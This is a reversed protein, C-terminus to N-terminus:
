LAKPNQFPARERELKLQKITPILTDALNMKDLLVAAGLSEALEKSDQDNWISIALVRPGHSLHSKVEQPKINNGDPMHLDLVVVQPNLNRTMRITQAFDAAEGVIEIEAQNLLLQRIGRRVLESDDALLIKVSADPNQLAHFSVQVERM